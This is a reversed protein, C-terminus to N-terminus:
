QGGKSNGSNQERKASSPISYADTKRSGQQM